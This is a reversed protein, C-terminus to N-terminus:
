PTQFIWNITGEHSSSLRKFFARPTFGTFQKFDRIMHSQDFYETIHAIDTLRLDKTDGIWRRLAKRFRVTKRFEAPTKGVHMEFHKILTKQTIGHSRALEGLTKDDHDPDQMQDLIQYLFPHSFGRFKGALYHELATIRSEDDPQAYLSLMGDTCDPFPHFGSDLNTNTSYNCLAQDLFANLGLPKFAVSIEDTAGRYTVLIPSNYRYALGTEFPVLPDHQVTIKHDSIHQRGQFFVAVMANINPFTLYTEDKEGDSRKLSYYCEICGKLLPHRPKFLHIKM